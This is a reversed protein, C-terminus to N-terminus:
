SLRVHPKAASVLDCLRVSRRPLWMLYTRKKKKKKGGPGVTGIRVIFWMKYWRCCFTIQTTFYLLLTSPKWRKSSCAAEANLTPAFTAAGIGGFRQYGIVVVWFVVTSVERATGASRIGCVSRRCV